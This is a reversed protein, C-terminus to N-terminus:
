ALGGNLGECWTLPLPVPYVQVDEYNRDSCDTFKTGDSFTLPASGVARYASVNNFHENAIRLISWQTRRHSSLKAGDVDLMM